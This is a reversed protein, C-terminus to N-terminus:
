GSGESVHLRGDRLQRVRGMEGALELSHTVVILTVGDARNLEVLLQGLNEASARDLSGTPEDALLLKPSNVLARVVAARQREGGSLEGPRHALREEPIELIDRTTLREQRDALAGTEVGGIHPREEVAAAGVGLQGGVEIEHALVGHLGAGRQQEVLPTLPERAVHAVADDLRVHALKEVARGTLM